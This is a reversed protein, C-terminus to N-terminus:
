GIKASKLAQEALRPDVNEVNTLSLWVIFVDTKDKIVASVSAANRPQWLWFFSSAVVAVEVVAVVWPVPVVVFFVELEFFDEDVVEVSADGEAFFVVVFFFVVVSSDADGEGEAV